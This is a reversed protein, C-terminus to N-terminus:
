ITPINITNWPRLSHSFSSRNIVFTCGGTMDLDAGMETLLHDKKSQDKFEKLMRDYFLPNAAFFEVLQQEQDMTLQESINIKKRPPDGDEEDDDEADSQTARTATGAPRKSAEPRQSAEEGEEVDSGAQMPGLTDLLSESPVDSDSMPQVEVPKKKTTKKAKKPGKSGKKPVKSGKKLSKPPM